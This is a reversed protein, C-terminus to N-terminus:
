SFTQWFGIEGLSNLSRGIGAEGKSASLSDLGGLGVGPPACTHDKSFPLCYRM